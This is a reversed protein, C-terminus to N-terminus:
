ERNLLDCREKATRYARRLRVMEKEAAELLARYNDVSKEAKGLAKTVRDLESQAVEAPTRHKSRTELWELFADIEKASRYAKRGNELKVPEPFEVSYRAVYSRMISLSAGVRKASEEQTELEEDQLEPRLWEINPM